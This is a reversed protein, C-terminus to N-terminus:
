HFTTYFRKVWTKINTALKKAIKDYEKILQLKESDNIIYKGYNITDNIKELQNCLKHQQKTLDLFNQNLYEHANPYGSEIKKLLKRELMIAASMIGAKSLSKLVFYVRFDNIKELSDFNKPNILLEMEDKKIYKLYSNNIIFELDDLTGKEFTKKLTNVFHSLALPNGLIILKELIPFILQPKDDLIREINFNKVLNKIETDTLRYLYSKNFLFMVQSATGKEFMTKIDKQFIELSLPHQLTVLKEILPFAIEEKSKRIREIDISDILPKIEQESLKLDDLVGSDFLFKLVQPSGAEFMGRYLTLREKRNLYNLYNREKLYNMVTEHGSSFREAIEDKFLKKAKLDGAMSLKKLLPFAINRHLLRTDYDNEVWAQLNSCHGWFETEPPILRKNQELSRDLRESAEDISQIDEYDEIDEPNITLLLYKCQEFKKDNVYIITTDEELKLTIYENVKFEREFM